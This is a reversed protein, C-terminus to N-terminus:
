EGGKKEKFLQLAKDADVVIIRGNQSVAERILGRKYRQATVNSVGFLKMIGKLGYVYRRPQETGQTAQAPTRNQGNLFAALQGATM